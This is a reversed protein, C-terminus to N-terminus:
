IYDSPTTQGGQFRKRVFDRLKEAGASDGLNKEMINAATTCVEPLRKYKPRDKPLSLLVRLGEREQGQESLAYGLWHRDTSSAPLWNGLAPKVRLWTEVTKEQDRDAALKKLRRNIHSTLEKHENDAILFQEFQENLGSHNPHRTLVQGLTWRAENILGEKRQITATSLALEPEYDEPEPINMPQGPPLSSDHGLIRQNQFLAVGTFRFVLIFTYTQLLILLGRHLWDPLVSTLPALVSAPIVVLFLVLISLVIYAVGLRQALQHVAEIDFATKFQGTIAVLMLSAPLLAAILLTLLPAILFPVWWWGVAVLGFLIVTVGLFSKFSELEKIDTLASPAPPDIQGQSSARYVHFGVWACALFAVVLFAFLMLGAPVLMGVVTLVAIFILLTPSLPYTLQEHPSAWFLKGIALDRMPENCLPCTIDLPLQAAKPKCLSCLYLDCPRCYWRAAQDAHYRCNASEGGDM